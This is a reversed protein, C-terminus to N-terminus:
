NRCIDGTTGLSNRDLLGPKDTIPLQLNTPLKLPNLYAQLKNSLGLNEAKTGPSAPREPQPKPNQPKGWVWLM